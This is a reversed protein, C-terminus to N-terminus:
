VAVLLAQNHIAQHECRREQRRKACAQHGAHEEGERSKNQGREAADRGLGADGRHLREGRRDLVGSNRLRNKPV